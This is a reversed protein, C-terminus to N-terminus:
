GHGFEVNRSPFTSPSSLRAMFRNDFFGGHIIRSLGYSSPFRRGRNESVVFVAWIFGGIWVKRYILIFGHVILMIMTAEFGHRDGRLWTAYGDVPSERRSTVCGQTSGARISPESHSRFIIGNSLRQTLLCRFPKRFFISLM